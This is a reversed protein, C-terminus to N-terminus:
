QPNPPDVHGSEHLLASALRQDEPNQLLSNGSPDNNPLKPKPLRHAELRSVSRIILRYKYQPPHGFGAQGVIKGSVSDHLFGVKDKWRGEPVTDSAVEFRGTLFAEVEYKPCQGCIGKGVNSYNSGVYRQFQRVTDSQVLDTSREGSDSSGAYELVVPESCGETMFLLDHAGHVVKGHISATEGNTLSTLSCVNSAPTQAASLRGFSVGFCLAFAVIRGSKSM